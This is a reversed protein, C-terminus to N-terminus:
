VTEHCVVRSKNRGGVETASSGFTFIRKRKETQKRLTSVDTEAGKRSKPTIQLHLQAGLQLKLIAHNVEAVFYCSQLRQDIMMMMMLLRDFSLDLSEEM